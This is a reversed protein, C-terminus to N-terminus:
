KVANTDVKGDVKADVKQIVRALAAVEKTQFEKLRKFVREITQFGGLRRPNFNWM